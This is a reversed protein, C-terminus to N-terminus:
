VTGGISWSPDSLIAIELDIIIGLIAYFPKRAGRCYVLILNVKALQACEVAEVM